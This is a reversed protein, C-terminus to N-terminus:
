VCWTRPIKIGYEEEIDNILAEAGDRSDCIVEITQPPKEEFGSFWAGVGENHPFIIAQISQSQLEKAVEM